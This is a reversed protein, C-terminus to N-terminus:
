SITDPDVGEHPRQPDLRLINRLTDVLIGYSFHISKQTQNGAEAPFFFRRIKLPDCLFYFLLRRKKLHFFIM